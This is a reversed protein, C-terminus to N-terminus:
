FAAGILKVVGALTAFSVAASLPLLFLFFFRGRVHLPWKEESRGASLACEPVASHDARGSAQSPM